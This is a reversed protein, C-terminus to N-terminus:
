GRSLFVGGTSQRSLLPHQRGYNCPLILGAKFRARFRRNTCFKVTVKYGDNLTQLFLHCPLPKGSKKLDKACAERLAVTNGRASRL